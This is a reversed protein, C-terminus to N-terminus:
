NETGRGGDILGMRAQSWGVQANTANLQSYWSSERERIQIAKDVNYTIAGAIVGVVTGLPGFASGIKAGTYIDSALTKARSTYANILAMQNEAMYDESLNFYRNGTSNAIRKTQEVVENVVKLVMIQKATSQSSSKQNNISISTDERPRETVPAASEGGSKGGMDYLEVVLRSKM